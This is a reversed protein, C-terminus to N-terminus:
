KLIAKCRECVRETVREAEINEIQYNSDVLPVTNSELSNRKGSFYESFKRVIMHRSNRNSIFEKIMYVLVEKEKESHCGNERYQLQLEEYLKMYMLVTKMDSIDNFYKDYFARFETQSMISDLDRFFPNEKLLKKGKQFIKEETETSLIGSTTLDILDM